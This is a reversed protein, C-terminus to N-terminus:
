MALLVEVREKVINEIAKLRKPELNYKSHKQFKFNVLKKLMKKRRKDLFKKAYEFFDNYTCPSQSNVYKNLNEKNLYDEKTIFNFLSNGHDFLPANDIIQNTKNDVLFGFNGFHRDTNCIIADFIIMDGFFTYYKEGLKEYYEEIIEIGGSKVINGVPVFSKNKSTFLECSSCLIGKWKSLNYKVAKIGFASAIQYAYYESYPEYGTNSAGVTGGKYLEIKGSIRRWCKPLMGNTTFEPSSILNKIGGRSSKPSKVL